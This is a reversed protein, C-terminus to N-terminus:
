GQAYTGPGAAVSHSLATRDLRGELWEHESTDWQVLEGRCQRRARWGHVRSLKARKPRWLKALRMWSRVTERSVAIGQERALVEAAQTPGYDAYHQRILDSAKRQIEGAIKRNSARGKLGHIVARDGRERLWKVLKKVWRRSLKLQEAAQRLTLHGKGVEHLVKLRDREEGNLLLSEDM